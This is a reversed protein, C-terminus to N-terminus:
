QIFAILRPDDPPPLREPQGPSRVQSINLSLLIELSSHSIASMGFGKVTLSTKSANHFLIQSLPMMRFIFDVGNLAIVEMIRCGPVIRGIGADM